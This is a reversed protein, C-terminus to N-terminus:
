RGRKLLGKSSPQTCTPFSHGQEEQYQHVCSFRAVGNLSGLFPLFIRDLQANFDLAESIHTNIKCEHRDLTVFFHYSSAAFTFAAAPTTQACGLYEEWLPSVQFELVSRLLSAVGYSHTCPPFSTAQSVITSQTTHMPSVKSPFIHVCPFHVWKLLLTKWGKESRM